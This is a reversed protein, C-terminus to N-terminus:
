YVKLAARLHQYQSIVDKNLSKSSNRQELCQCYPFSYQEATSWSRNFDVCILDKDLYFYVTQKIARSFMVIAFPEVKWQMKGGVTTCNNKKIFLVPISNNKETQYSTFSLIFALTLFLVNSSSPHLTHLKKGRRKHSCRYGQTRASTVQLYRYGRSSSLPLIIHYQSSTRPQNWFMFFKNLFGRM